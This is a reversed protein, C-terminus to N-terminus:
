QIKEKKAKHIRKKTRNASFKLKDSIIVAQTRRELERLFAANLVHTTNLM